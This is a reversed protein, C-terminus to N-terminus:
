CNQATGNRCYFAKRDECAWELHRHHDRPHLHHPMESLTGPSCFFDHFHQFSFTKRAEQEFIQFDSEGTDIFWCIQRVNCTGLIFLFILCVLHKFSNKVPRPNNSSIRKWIVSIINCVNIVFLRLCVSNKRVLFRM